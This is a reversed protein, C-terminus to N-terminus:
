SYVLFVKNFVCCRLKMPRAKSNSLGVDRSGTNQCYESVLYFYIQVCRNRYKGYSIADLSLKHLM